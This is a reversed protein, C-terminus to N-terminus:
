VTAEETSTRESLRQKHATLIQQAKYKKMRLHPYVAHLLRLARASYAMGLNIDFRYVEVQRGGHRYIRGGWANQIFQLCPLDYVAEAITLNMKLYKKTNQYSCVLSGDGDIVGALWAPSPFNKPKLPGTDTRSQKSWMKLNRIQEEDLITGSLSRYTELLRMFHKGKIYMHKAIHPIFRELENGRQIQWLATPSWNNRRAPYVLSGLGYRSHLEKICRFDKDVSEATMLAFKLRLKFGGSVKYFTFCLNGDTDVLGATYKHLTETTRTSTDSM